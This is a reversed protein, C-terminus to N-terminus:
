RPLSSDAAEVATLQAPGRRWASGSWTRVAEGLDILDRGWGSWRLIEEEPTGPSLTLSGTGPDAVVSDSRSLGQPTQVSVHGECRATGDPALLLADAEIRLDDGVTLRVAGRVGLRGDSPTLRAEAAQLRALVSAGRLLEMVPNELQIGKGDTILATARVQWRAGTRTFAQHSFRELRVAVAGATDSGSSPIAAPVLPQLPGEDTGGVRAALSILAIGAVVGSVAFLWPVGTRRVGPRGPLDESRGVDRM